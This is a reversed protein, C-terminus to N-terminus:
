QVLDEGRGEAVILMGTMGDGWPELLEPIRGRDLQEGNQAWHTALIVELRPVIERTLVARQNPTLPVGNSEYALLYNAVAADRSGFWAKFAPSTSVSSAVPIEMFDVVSRASQRMVINEIEQQTPGDLTKVIPTAETPKYWSRVLRTGFLGIVFGAIICIVIGTNKTNM